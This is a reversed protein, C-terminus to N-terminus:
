GNFVDSFWQKIRQSLKEPKQSPEVPIHPSQEMFYNQSDFPVASHKRCYTGDPLILSAKATDHLQADLIWKLQEKIQADQVPCAIEVRHNLNRTMLDASSIYYEAQEGRGFQYIRSHELFRGVISTVHIRETEGVVGPLICCIGRVILQVEVGAQSAQALKDIINRETVSNTKICIYGEKGLAIQRDINKLLMEKIGFPSVCLKQYEGDLKNVLMNRFFAAADEGITQDTTMLSLDTYMANTKENYNGTGIQTLYTTKNHNRLTILCIKSHCKYGETGYIVQCGSEELMKSWLLNNEEDFRARLEMLVLVEKGNEAARCLTQAIKSSSALRYITIKISLVHPNDAAENLLRLFPDVSDFPYFLLRDKKQVQPMIPQDHKLDEAWRPRYTPYLLRTSLEKPLDGVLKFVYGMNLPTSDVFIQYKEVRAIGSLLKQFDSSVQTSLELRVVSLHDRQKLLKKMQRRFDDENDEFKEDDFSIDANRTVTLICSEKVTYADFLAPLWHLLINETRVYRMGDELLLYPSVHAPVPVIGVAREGKKNKLMAVANMRKNVLHPVPHNPGILIPSLIPLLEKKFFRNVQKLDDSNLTEISVDQIGNQGLTEMVATYIQKKMTLLGPITHYIHRLQNSPTWGTKSDTDDPTMHALDFLSGVRVMFFEDLNSSFISIFKLRELAPVDQDAAEELVRQNFRLWSLERNQTYRYKQTNKSM